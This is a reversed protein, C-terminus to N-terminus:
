VQLLQLYIGCIDCLTNHVVDAPVNRDNKFIRCVFTESYILRKAGVFIIFTMFTPKTYSTLRRTSFIVKSSFYITEVRRGCVFRVKFLCALLVLLRHM